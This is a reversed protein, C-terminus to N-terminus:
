KGKRPDCKICFYLSEFRTGGDHKTQKEIYEDGNSIEQMCKKCELKSTAKAIRYKNREPEQEDLPAEYWKFHCNQCIREIREPKQPHHACDEFVCGKKAEKHIARIMDHGCKPCIAIPNYPKM